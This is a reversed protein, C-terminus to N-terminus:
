SKLEEGSRQCSGCTCINLRLSPSGPGFGAQLLFSQPMSAIIESCHYACNRRPSWRAKGVVLFFDDYRTSAFVGALKLQPKGGLANVVEDAGKDLSPAVKCGLLAPVAVGTTAVAPAGGFVLPGWTLLFTLNSIGRFKITVASVLPRPSTGGARDDYASEGSAAFCNAPPRKFLASAKRECGVAVLLLGGPPPV